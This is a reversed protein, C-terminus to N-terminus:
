TKSANVPGSTSKGSRRLARYDQEARFRARAREREIGQDKSIWHFLGLALPLGAMGCALLAWWFVSGIGGNSCVVKSRRLQGPM